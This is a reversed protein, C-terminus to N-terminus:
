DVDTWARLPRLPTTAVRSSLLTVAAGDAEMRYLDLETPQGSQFIRDTYAIHSGTPSWRAVHLGHDPGNKSVAGLVLTTRGTGDPRIKEVRWQQRNQGKVRVTESRTLVIETQDGATGPDQDVSWDLEWAGESVLQTHAGVPDGVEAIWVGGGNGDYVVSTGDPSWAYAAVDPESGDLTATPVVLTPASMGTFAGNADQTLTARFIGSEVYAECQQQPDGDLDAWRSGSFTITADRDGASDPSWALNMGGADYGDVLLCDGRNDSLRVGVADGERVMDIESAYVSSPANPFVVDASPWASALYWRSGDHSEHSPRGVSGSGPMCGPATCGYDTPAGPLAEDTPGDAERRRMERNAGSGTWTYIWGSDPPPPPPTATPPTGGGGGGGGGHGPRHHSHAPQAFALLLGLVLILVPWAGRGFCLLWSPHSRPQLSEISHKADIPLM